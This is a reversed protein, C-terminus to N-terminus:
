WDPYADDALSDLPFRPRELRDWNFRSLDVAFTGPSDVLIIESAFPEYDARFHNVTKLVLVPEREPVIGAQRWVEADNPSYRHETLLVSIDESPGCELRVTRGLQQEVGTAQPGHNTFWGDTIAKVNGELEIPECPFYDDPHHCGVEVTVHEGVGANICEAVADPDWQVAVGADEIGGDILARLMDARDEVGGGGPNDGIDILLVPGDEPRKDAVATKAEEVATAPDPYEAVLRERQDWIYQALERAAETAAASDGDAVVPVAMGTWPTDAHNFGFLLNVKLVGERDELARARDVIDTMPGDRTNMKPFDPLVPPREIRIAPDIDNEIAASLVAAAQQGRAVHDVHPYTEYALLVDALEITQDAINTHPDLTAVIPVDTGLIDRLEALLPGEGDDMGEPVMAGHLSLFVGDIVDSHERATSCIEETYFEYAETTVRGGPTASAAVTPLLEMGDCEPADLFGGITSGTDRFAEFITEGFHEYRAQFAARDTENPAFTNTEHKFEAVLITHTM